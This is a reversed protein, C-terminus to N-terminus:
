KRKRSGKTTSGKGTGTRARKKKLNVAGEAEAEVESLPGGDDIASSATPPAHRRKLTSPGPSDREANRIPSFTTSLPSLSLVQPMTERPPTLEKQKGKGQRPIELPTEVGTAQESQNQPCGGSALATESTRHVETPATSRAQFQREM